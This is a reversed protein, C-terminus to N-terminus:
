DNFVPVLRAKEINDLVININLKDQQKKDKKLGITILRNDKDVAIIKGAFKRRREIGQRTNIKVEQGIFREFHELTFLPRDLGPSSVELTYAMNIPEEVDLLPNIQETVLVVDDMTIGGEPKDVYIRLISNVSNPHFEVGVWEFGMSEVVPQCLQTIKDERSM